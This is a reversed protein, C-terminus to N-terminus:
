LFNAVARLCERPLQHLEKAIGTLGAAEEAPRVSVREPLTAAEDTTNASSAAPPPAVAAAAAAAPAAPEGASGVKFAAFAAPLEQDNDGQLSSPTPAAEGELLSQEKGAAPKAEAFTLSFVLSAGCAAGFPELWARRVKKSLGQMYVSLRQLGLILMDLKLCHHNLAVLQALFFFFVCVCVLILFNVLDFTFWQTIGLVTIIFLFYSLDSIAASVKEFDLWKTLLATEVRAKVCFKFDEDDSEDHDMSRRACFLGFRWLEVTGNSREVYVCRPFRKNFLAATYVYSDYNRAVVSLEHGCIKQCRTCAVVGSDVNCLTPYFPGSTFESPADQMCVDCKPADYVKCSPKIQTAKQRLMEHFSDGEGKLPQDPIRQEDLLSFPVAESPMGRWQLSLKLAPGHGQLSMLIVPVNRNCADDVPTNYTCLWLVCKLVFNTNLAKLVNVLV